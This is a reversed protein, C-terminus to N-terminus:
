EMTGVANKLNNLAAQAAQFKAEDRSAAIGKGLVHGSLEVQFYYEGKDLTVSAPAQDQFVLSQGLEKISCLVSSLRESTYYHQGLHESTSAGHLYGQEPPEDSATDILDELFGNKNRVSLKDKERNVDRNTPLIFSIYNSELNRLANEAAQLQAEKRTKGMGIGIRESSFLVEVSFDPDKSSAIIPKFEVKSECRRGIEQLVAVFLSPFMNSSGINNVSAGNQSSDDALSFPTTQAQDRIHRGEGLCRAQNLKEAAEPGTMGEVVSIDRNSSLIANTDESMLYDSVDPSTPLDSVENEYYLACIRRMWDDDFEKFFGGRVNCAVNRAVCLVPVANAMEAQPAYYPTFAPVVHVRPQDRDEWVQLRDDIVMAMKPHCIGDKFVHELSKRSGPKVCVVRDLLQSSSILHTEPDLLRWMELAYDREAMTCVYVEFRKRGKATLYSRLDEWAPRLRVFVSTDRIEPNIRTLVINRHMLRIVPRLLPDQSGPLVPVQESLASVSKGNDLLVTDNEIFQKLMNKDEIYRKIEASMGSIRFPDDEADIRRSLTEIRDEFSKMTNAVILTEDLDFVISLCRLNLMRLCPDYLGPHVSFCWFCPLTNDLHSRMAVLHLEESGNLVVASRFKDFCTSHLLNIPSDPTPSKAQIKCRVSSPSSITQLVSLPPLRDGPPSLHSIRLIKNNNSSSSSSSILLLNNPFLSHQNKIPFVEVEGLCTDGHYIVLAGVSGKNGGNSNSTSSNGQPSAPSQRTM